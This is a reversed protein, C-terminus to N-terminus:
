LNKGLRQLLLYILRVLRVDDRNNTGFRKIDDMIIETPYLIRYFILPYFSGREFLQM